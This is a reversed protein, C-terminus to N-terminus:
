ATRLVPFRVIIVDEIAQQLMSRAEKEQKLRTIEDQLAANEGELAAKEQAFEELKDKFLYSVLDTAM